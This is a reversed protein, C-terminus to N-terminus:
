PQSGEARWELLAAALAEAVSAQYSPDDLSGPDPHGKSADPAVEVAVAPCAMSDITTLATRGLLVPISAHALASNLTGALALSRQVWAAQATKWPLFRGPSAPTLSSVFLHVGSGSLSAHLSICAAANARNAIEDRRTDDVTADSERTTVVSIGRAALLSRLRVSLALTFDKETQSNLRGGTDDGGHAADLVVVFRTGPAPQAQASAPLLTFAALLAAGLWHATAAVGRPLRRLRAAGCSVNEGQRSDLIAPATPTKGPKSCPIQRLFAKFATSFSGNSSLNERACPRVASFTHRRSRFPYVDAMGHAKSGTFLHFRRAM